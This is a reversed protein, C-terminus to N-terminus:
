VDMEKEWKEIDIGAEKLKRTCVWVLEDADDTEYRECLAKVVDHIGVFVKHLRKEGFGFETHLFLLIAADLEMHHKATYEALQRQIEIDMAKQEARTFSAGYVKGM